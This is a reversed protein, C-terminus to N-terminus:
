TNEQPFNNPKLYYNMSNANPQQTRTKSHALHTHKSTKTETRPTLVIIDVFLL